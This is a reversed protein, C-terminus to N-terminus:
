EDVEVLRYRAGAAGTLTLGSIKGVLEIRFHQEDLRGGHRYFFSSRTDVFGVRLYPPVGEFFVNNEFFGDVFAQAGPLCLRYKKGPVMRSSM